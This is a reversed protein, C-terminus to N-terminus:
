AILDFEVFDSKLGVTSVTGGDALSWSMSYTDTSQAEIAAFDILIIESQLALVEVEKDQSMLFEIFSRANVDIISFLTAPAQPTIEAIPGTDLDITDDDVDGIGAAVPMEVKPQRSAGLLLDSTDETLSAVDFTAQVTIGGLDFTKFVDALATKLDLLSGFELADPTARGNIVMDVNETEIDTKTAATKVQEDKVTDKESGDAPTTSAIVPDGDGAELLEDVWSNLTASKLKPPLDTQPPAALVSDLILDLDIGSLDMALDSPPVDVLEPAHDFAAQLIAALDFGSNRPAAADPAPLEAASAADMEAPILDLAEQDVDDKLDLFGESVGFAIAIASLGVAIPTTAAVLATKGAVERLLAGERLDTERTTEEAMRINILQDPLATSDLFAQAEDGAVPELALDNLLAISGDLDEPNTGEEPALMVLEESNLYITWILAALLAAPHLFVKGNRQLRIVRASGKQVGETPGLAGDSFNNILDTFDMGSLPNRLNPSDLVYRGDLRCLHIFVDGGRGCFICWPDGEDSIGRELTNPVGAADLLKKVRYISALEQNSWDRLILDSRPTEESSPPAPVRFNVERGTPGFEVTDDADKLFDGETTSKKKPRFNFINSM